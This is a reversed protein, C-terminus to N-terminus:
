DEESNKQDNNETDDLSFERETPKINVTVFETDDNDSDQKTPTQNVHIFEENQQRENRYNQLSNYGILQKHRSNMSLPGHLIDFDSDYDYEEEEITEDVVNADFNNQPEIEIPEPSDTQEQQSDVVKEETSSTPAEEPIQEIVPVTDIDIPLKIDFLHLFILTKIDTLQCNEDETLSSEKSQIEGEENKFEELISIIQFDTQSSQESKLEFIILGKEYPITLSLESAKFSVEIKCKLKKIENFIVNLDIIIPSSFSLPAKSIITGNELPDTTEINSFSPTSIDCQSVEIKIDKLNSNSGNHLIENIIERIAYSILNKFYYIFIKNNSLLSIWNITETTKNPPTKELPINKPISVRPVPRFWHMFILFFLIIFLFITGM